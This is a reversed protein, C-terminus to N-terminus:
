AGYRVLSCQVITSSLFEYYLTATANAPTPMTLAMVVGDRDYARKLSGGSPANVTLTHGGSGDQALHISGKRGAAGGSWDITLNGTLAGIAFDNDESVNLTVTSAYSVSLPGNLFAGAVTLNGNDDLTAVSSNQLLKGTTGDFRALANDTASSPGEVAGEVQKVKPRQSM